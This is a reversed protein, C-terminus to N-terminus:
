NIKSDKRVKRHKRQLNDFKEMTWFWKTRMSCLNLGIKVFVYSLNMSVVSRMRTLKAALHEFPSSMQVSM